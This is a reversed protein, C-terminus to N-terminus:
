EDDEFVEEGLALRVGGRSPPDKVLIFPKGEKDEEVPGFLRM